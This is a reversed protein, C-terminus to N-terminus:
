SEDESTAALVVHPYPLIDPVRVVRVHLGLDSLLAAWDEHHRYSIPEKPGVMLRDLAWTFALKVPQDVTIDKVLLVGRPSLLGRLKKLLPLQSDFPVHHLVDLMFIGDFRGSLSATEVTGCVYENRVCLNAAVDRAIAIRRACPDVGIIKRAPVMLGMYSSFLGFGCGVDLIRGHDPLLLNLMTLLKQRMIAFRVTAYAREVPPLSRAIRRVTPVSELHEARLRAHVRARRSEQRVRGVEGAVPQEVSWKIM